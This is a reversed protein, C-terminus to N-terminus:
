LQPVPSHRAVNMMAADNRGVQHRLPRERRGKQPDVDHPSRGGSCQRPVNLAAAANLVSGALVLDLQGWRRRDKPQQDPVVPRAVHAAALTMSPQHQEGLIALHPGLVQRLSGDASIM